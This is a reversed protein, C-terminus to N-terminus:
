IVTLSLYAMFGLWGFWCLKWNCRFSAIKSLIKLGDSYLNETMEDDNKSYEGSLSLLQKTICQLKPWSYPYGKDKASIYVTSRIVKTDTRPKFHCEGPILM